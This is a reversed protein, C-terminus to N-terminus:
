ALTYGAEEVAQRVDDIPLARDATVQVKGTTVDVHVDSVGELASLEATVAHACHDCTMGSVDYTDTTTM